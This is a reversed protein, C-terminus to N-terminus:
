FPSYGPARRGVIAANLQYLQRNRERTDDLLSADLGYADLVARDLSVQLERLAEFAGDAVLRYLRHLGVNHKLCLTSRADLLERTISAIQERQRGDVQPWPFTNFASSPTYRIRDELTSSKKAAWATHITSCLVGMSYDDALAFMNTSNSPRWEPNCWVFFVRASTATGVVFRELGAAARRFEPRPWLFQWWHPNRSYSNSHERAEKAQDRLLDLAAPYRMAQELSMQAFDITYRSPTQDPKRTIDRGDLYAKVVDQYAAERRALLEQATPGDIDYRAGPLFGQFAVGTNAPIEPVDAIPITSEELATDIGEVEHGDLVFRAPADDPEKIWNVISVDVNAEGPWDQTSVADTIIGGNEVIYNLSASRGRNQSISNTGVLGARAGAQLHDHAKRFWYVCHDRVGCGFERRLWEVYGDGLLGRLHRDGHFPPNSIIVSARPWPLRLADGARIGSLDELPLTAEHLDLEDVALKHAMWLTVRALEVAFPNIEIGRINHLSFFAAIVGQEAAVDRRLGAALRLERERVHLRDELRRLERYAIYLFNGSGCAPDLVVFNLLQSQLGRAERWTEANEIRERWPEVICPQIVKQIDVEHTYHAGLEWQSDHGLAGELLSGFIHPEVRHWDYECALRLAVLEEQDLHVHAPQAFLGGNVYRTDAYLGGPPRPGERNLWDFLGGLDDASSREGHALLEDVIRTFVHGDLQRLDEAFMCWVSQLMFDRVEDLPGARRDTLRHYLATVLSVAERTVASQSGSFVPEGGTLFLLADQQEPLERLDFEAVPGNPFAGPEWIEFRRFACLLVFRPAPVHEDPRAAGRWYNLTQPRHQALRSAESPRKMEILCVRPWLLDVFRGEQPDEFRAGVALRDQGYCAFLENVFTQAEARETGGYLDWRQAFAVLRRQIDEGTLPV